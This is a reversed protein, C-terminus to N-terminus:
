VFYMDFNKLLGEIVASIAVDFEKAKGQTLALGIHLLLGFGHRVFAM